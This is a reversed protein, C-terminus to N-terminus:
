AGVEKHLCGDVMALQTIVSDIAPNWSRHRSWGQFTHGNIVATIEVNPIPTGSSLAVGPLVYFMDIQAMPYGVPVELALLVKESSYGEPLVYDQIVLWRRPEGGFVPELKTEWRHGMAELYSEDAPLLRFQRQLSMAVEGNSVDAPTLRLKEIGPTTLDIVDGMQMARKDEGEVKLFILWNGSADLGALKVAERVVITPGHIELIKGQVNLKWIGPRTILRETGPANLNVVSTNQIELDAEDERELLLRKGPAVNALQRIVEGTITSCLWPLRIGDVTFNYTRDSLGVVFRQGNLVNGIGETPSVDEIGTPLLMLVIAEDDPKFGAAMAIQQGTPTQDNIVVQRYVLNEDGIQVTVSRQPQQHSQM